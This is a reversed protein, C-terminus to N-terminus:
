DFEDSAAGQKQGHAGVVLLSVLWDASGSATYVGSCTASWFIPRLPPAPLSSGASNPHLLNFIAGPKVGVVGPLHYIM